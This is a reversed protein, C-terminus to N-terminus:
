TEIQVQFEKYKISMMLIVDLYIRNQMTQAKKVKGGSQDPRANTGLSSGQLIHIDVEMPVHPPM